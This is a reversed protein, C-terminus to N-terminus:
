KANIAEVLADTIAKNVESNAPGAIPAFDPEGKANTYPRQPYAVWPSGDEKTRVTLDNIYMSLDTTVSFRMLINEKGEIPNLTPFKLTIGNETYEDGVGEGEMLKECCHIVVELIADKAEATATAAITAWKTENNKDTYPRQPFKIFPSYEKEAGEPSGDFLLCGNIFIPFGTVKVSGYGFVNKVKDGAKKPYSVEVVGEKKEVKDKVEKSKAGLRAM